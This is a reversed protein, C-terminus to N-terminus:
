RGLRNRVRPEGAFREGTGSHDSGSWAEIRHLGRRPVMSRFRRRLESERTAAKRLRGDRYRAGGSLRHGLAIWVCVARELVWVPAALSALISFRSSGSHRRRGIEALLVTAGTLACLSTPRRRGLWLVAPGIVLMLSLKVPQAFDDYAQRVRQGWFGSVEPPVRPVYFSPAWRVVGGSARVTRILELNEFLVDDAYGGARIFWSRRLAMTGPYDHGLARALLTRSTDWVMHWRLPGVFYNQPVVLDASDLMMATAALLDPDYRIDEDAIV